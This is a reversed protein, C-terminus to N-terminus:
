GPPECGVLRHIYAVLNNITQRRGFDQAGRDGELPRAIERWFLDFARREETLNALYAMAFRLAETRRVPGQLAEEAAEAVAALAKDRLDAPSFRPM